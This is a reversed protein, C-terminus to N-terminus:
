KERERVEKGRQSGGVFNMVRGGEDKGGRGKREIRERLGNKNIKIKIIIM